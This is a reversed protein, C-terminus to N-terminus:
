ILIEWGSNEGDKEGGQILIEENKILIKWGIKIEWKSNLNGWGLNFSRKFENQIKEM